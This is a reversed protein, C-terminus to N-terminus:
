NKKIKLFYSRIIIVLYTLRCYIDNCYFILVLIIDSVELTLIYLM